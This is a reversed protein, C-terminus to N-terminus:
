NMLRSAQTLQKKALNTTQTEVVKQVPEQKNGLLATIKEITIDGKGSNIIRSVAQELREDTVKNNHCYNLLNIFGRPDNTFYDEYLHKLYASSALAQSGPLAGPKKKFTDLFHEINIIWQHKNYGRAHMAVRQQNFYIEIKQSMIRAEVFSGVLHDPVSYRNTRYSVTAYKDVRLQMPEYCIMEKPVPYLVEKEQKFLEFATKGTLRQRTANLRNIITTLWEQAESVTSFHNKVGFAKRRIYEVSREVHGKENGRYINCFRHTFGYHARMQLLAQTPEKEHPGIFKSVAVRMNDYVMQHYVGGTHAFFSVHAEMFSLTDQRYYLRAYRYNGFASTFVALQLRIIKDKIHLKIEGWDFECVEGPSYVQRIFAEKNQPSIQKNSIYNCVTTYGIDFGQKHLHSLIDCKKLMQKRFGERQKQHNEELLKDIEQQVEQTLKLKPRHGARYTPLESLYSSQVDQQNDSKQIRSEYLDIYKKVTLRSIQLEKSIARQSKGERYSKIIIEQKTYMSIM